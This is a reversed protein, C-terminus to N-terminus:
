DPVVVYFELSFTVNPGVKIGTDIFAKGDTYLCDVQRDYPLIDQIKFRRKARPEIMWEGVPHNRDTRM